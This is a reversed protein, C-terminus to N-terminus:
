SFFKSMYEKYPIRRFKNRFFPNSKLEDYHSHLFPLTFPLTEEVYNFDNEYIFDLSFNEAGLNLKTYHFFSLFRKVFKETEFSARNALFYYRFDSQILDESTLNSDELRFKWPIKLNNREFFDRPFNLNKIQIDSFRDLYKEVFKESLRTTNLINWNIKGIESYKEVFAESLSRNASFYDWNVDNVHEEFFAESLSSNLSLTHWDVNKIHKEFFAEGLGFNLSIWSWNVDKAHKEIFDESLSLNHSVYNWDVYDLFEELETLRASLWQWDLNEAYQRIIELPLNPNRTLEKWHTFSAPIDKFDANPNRCMTEWNVLYKHNQFFKSPIDPNKSLLKWDDVTFDEWIMELFKLNEQDQLADALKKLESEEIGFYLCGELLYRPSFNEVNEFLKNQNLIHFIDEYEKLEVENEIASFFDRSKKTIEDCSFVIKFFTSNFTIPYKRLRYTAYTTHM